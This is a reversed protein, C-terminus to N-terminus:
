AVSAKAVSTVLIILGELFPNITLVGRFQSLVQPKDASIM